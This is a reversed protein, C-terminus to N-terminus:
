AFLYLVFFFQLLVSSTSLHFPLSTRSSRLVPMRTFPSSPLFAKLISQFGIDAFCFHSWLRSAPPLPRYKRAEEFIIMIPAMCIVYGIYKGNFSSTLFVTQFPPCFVVLVSVIISCPFSMNVYKNDLGKKFLSTFRTKVCMMCAIQGLMITFLYGSQAAVLAQTLSPPYSTELFSSDNM